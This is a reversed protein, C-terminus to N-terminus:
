LEQSTLIESLFVQFKEKMLVLLLDCSTREALAEMTGGFRVVNVAVNRVGFKVLARTKLVM